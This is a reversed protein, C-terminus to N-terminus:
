CFIDYKTDLNNLHLRQSSTAMPSTYLIYTHVQPSVTKPFCNTCNIRARFFVTREKKQTGKVVPCLITGDGDLSGHAWPVRDQWLLSLLRSGIYSSQKGIVFASLLLATPAISAFLFFFFTSRIVRHPRGMEGVSKKKKIPYCLSSCWLARHTRMQHVTCTLGAHLYFVLLFLFSVISDLSYLLFLIEQWSKSSFIFRLFFPFLSITTICSCIPM